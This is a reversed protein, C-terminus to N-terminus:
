GGSRASVVQSIRAARHRPRPFNVELDNPTCTLAEIMAVDQKLEQHPV